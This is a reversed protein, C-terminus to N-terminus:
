RVLYHVCARDFSSGAKRLEVCVEYNKYRPPSQVWRKFYRPYHERDEFPDCDSEVSSRGNPLLWLVEPCYYKEVEPGVIQASLLIRQMRGGPAISARPSARVVLGPKEHEDYGAGFLSLSFLLLSLAAPGRALSGRRLGPGATRARVAQRFM